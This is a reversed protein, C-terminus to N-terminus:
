CKGGGGGSTISQGEVQRACFSTLRARHCGVMCQAQFASRTLHTGDSTRTDGVAPPSVYAEHTVKRGLPRCLLHWAVGINCGAPESMRPVGRKHPLRDASQIQRPSTAGLTPLPWPAAARLGEADEAGCASLLALCRM